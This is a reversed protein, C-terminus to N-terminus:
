MYAEIQSCRTISWLCKRFEKGLFTYIFINIASNLIAFSDRVKFLTENTLDISQALTLIKVVIDPIIAILSTIVAGAFIAALKQEERM